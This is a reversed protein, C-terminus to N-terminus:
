IQTNPESVDLSRLYNDWECARKAWTFEANIYQVQKWMQEAWAEPHARFRNINKRLLAAYEDVTAGALSMSDIFETQPSAADTTVVKLGAAMAELIAISHCETFISPYVLFSVDRLHKALEPQSVSGCMEICDNAKVNAYMEKFSSDDGQYVAMSSFVSIPLEKIQSLIGLGRFPTSTYAGRCKKTELIQQASSFMNEFAPAIANEIIKEFPWPFEKFPFVKAFADQQSQSVFVTRHIAQAAEKKFFHQMAPQDPRMHNWLIIKARPATAQIAPAAQPASTLIIFDPDLSEFLAKDDSVPTHKVGLQEGDFMTNCMLTVDHGLKVLEPALYSIASETGGLPVSLPTTVDFKLTSLCIFLIKM